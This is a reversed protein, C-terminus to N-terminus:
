RLQVKGTAYLEEIAKSYILEGGTPFDPGKIINSLKKNSIDKNEVLATLGDIVEGLYSSSYKNGNWCCDRIIWKIIFHFNHQYFM